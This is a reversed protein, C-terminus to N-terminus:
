AMMLRVGTVILLGYFLYRLGSVPFHQSLSAGWWGGVIAGPALWVTLWLGDLPSLGAMGAVAISQLAVASASLGIIMATSNAIANRLPVGFVLTQAPVAWVGGAVGIVGAILGSPLGVITGVRRWSAGKIRDMGEVHDRRRFYHTQVLQLGVALIMFVGFCRTLLVTREQRFVM